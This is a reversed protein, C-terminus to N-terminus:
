KHTHQAIFKNHKIITSVKYCGAWELAESYRLAYHRHKYGHGIIVYGFLKALSKNITKM